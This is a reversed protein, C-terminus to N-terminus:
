RKSGKLIKAQEKANSKLVSEVCLFFRAACPCKLSYHVQLGNKRDQVIGANKLISLHKSVTSVDAEVMSTLECVCKERKSLVEVIFLRTPHALAKLIKARADYRKRTEFKM